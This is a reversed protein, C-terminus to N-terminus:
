SAQRLGRGVVIGRAEHERIREATVAAFEDDHLAQERAAIRSGLQPAPLAREGTRVADRPRPERPERLGDRKAAAEDVGRHDRRLDEGIAGIQDEGSRREQAMERDGLEAGDTALAAGIWQRDQARHECSRLERADGAQVEIGHTVQDLGAALGSRVVELGELGLRLRAHELTFHERM